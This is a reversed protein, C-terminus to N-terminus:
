QCFTNYIGEVLEARYTHGTWNRKAKVCYIAVIVGIIGVAFLIAFWAYWPLGYATSYFVFNTLISM